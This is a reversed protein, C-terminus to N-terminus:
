DEVIEFEERLLWVYHDSWNELHTFEIPCICYNIDEFEETDENDNWDVIGIRGDPLRVKTGDPVLYEDVDVDFSINLDEYNYEDNDNLAYVFLTSSKLLHYPTSFSFPPTNFPLPILDVQEFSPM